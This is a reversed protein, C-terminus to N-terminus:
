RPAAPANEPQLAAMCLPLRWCIAAAHLPLLALHWQQGCCACKAAVGSWFRPWHLVLQGGQCPRLAHSVPLPRGDGAPLFLIRLQVHDHYRVLLAAYAFWGYITTAHGCRRLCGFCSTVFM